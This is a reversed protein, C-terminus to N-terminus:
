QETKITAMALSYEGDDTTSSYMVKFGSKHFQKIFDFADVYLAQWVTIVEGKDIGIIREGGALKFRLSVASKLRIGISRTQTQMNYAQEVEYSSPDINLLDPIRRHRSSLQDIKEAELNLSFYPDLNGALSDAYILLDAKGMSRRINQLAEIPARSNMITGGFLVVINVPNDAAHAFYEDVLLDSFPETTIDRAYTEVHVTDGFWSDINDKAIQLMPESLDIGIYRGLVKKELLGLILDRVPMANGPGLDIINVRKSAGLLYDLYSDSLSLLQMTSSMLSSGPVPGEAHTVQEDWLKAGDGFYSYKLPIERYTDISSAIEVVQTTKYREYFEPSPEIALHHAANRFKKGREALKEMILRNEPTNVIYSRGDQEHLELDLRGSRAAEIWNRVASESVRYITALEVNKKFYRM